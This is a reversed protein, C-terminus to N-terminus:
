RQHYADTMNLMSNKDIPVIGMKKYWTLIIEESDNQFQVVVPNDSPSGRHNVRICESCRKVDSNIKAIQRSFIAEATVVINKLYKKEYKDALFMPVQIPVTGDIRDIMAKVYPHEMTVDGRFGKGVLYTESNAERSTVPKCIYFEDFLQSLAYMASVTIMEFTTYQKTVFSGGKRLTMIGSLIQGINAQAHILEQNNYDSSTDFGLDSTYLDVGDTKGCPGIKNCFDQQNAPNLVDGNNSGDMLWNEPYRQFLAYKDVLPAHNGSTSEHLSSAYWKYRDGWKRNTMIYHHTSVVFSGPFAANDFHVFDTKTEEPILDFYDIIEFCKLWANTVNFTCGIKAVIAKEARFPDFLRWYKPFRNNKFEVDLQNKSIDVQEKLSKLAKSSYKKTNNIPLMKDDSDLKFSIM